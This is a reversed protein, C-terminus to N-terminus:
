LWWQRVPCSLQPELRAQWDPDHWEILLEDILIDIKREILQGVLAKETGEIDMKVILEGDTRKRLEFLWAPFDFCEVDDGLGIRSGSGTERFGVRGDEVWAARRSLTCPVGDIAPMDEDLFPSPDFGYVYDPRYEEVLVALSDAGNREACGLDVVVKM